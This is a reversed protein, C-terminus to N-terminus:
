AALNKAARLLQFQRQVQGDSGAQAMKESFSTRGKPTLSSQEQPAQEVTTEGNAGASAFGGTDGVVAPDADFSAGLNFGDVDGDLAPGAFNGADGVIGVASFGSGFAGSDVPNAGVFTRTGDAGLGDSAGDDSIITRVGDAGLGNGAPDASIITQIADVRPGDMVPDNLVTKIEVPQPSVADKPAEAPISVEPVTETITVGTVTFTMTYTTTSDNKGDNVTFEVTQTGAGVSPKYKLQSGSIESSASSAGVVQNLTVATGNLTFDGATPLSTFKVSYLGDSDGDTFPFDSVKFTYTDAEDMTVAGDASTPITDPAVGLTGQDVHLTYSGTANQSFTTARIVDGTNYTFSIYSDYGSSGEGGDDDSAEVTGDAKVVQLYPDGLTGGGDRSMYIQVITGDAVGSLSYRDMLTNAKAPNNFDSNDISAGTTKEAWGTATALSFLTHDWESNELAVTNIEGAEAELDWDGGKDTAGTLDDSAAVDAGTLISIQDIFGQGEGDAGVNCGYLLIDGDQGLAAGIAALADVDLNTADIREGGLILAGEDGHSILHIADLGTKGALLDAIDQLTANEGLILVQAGAPANAALTEYDPVSSDIIVVEKRETAAPTPTAEDGDDSTADVADGVMAGDFMIRQELAFAGPLKDISNDFM